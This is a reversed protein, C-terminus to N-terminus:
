SRNVVSGKGNQSQNHVVGTIPSMVVSATVFTYNFPSGTGSFGAGLIESTSRLGAARTCISLCFTLYSALALLFAQVPFLPEDDICLSIHIIEASARSPGCPLLNEARANSSSVVESKCADTWVRHMHGRELGEWYSTKMQSLLSGGGLGAPSWAIGRQTWQPRSCGPSTHLFQPM